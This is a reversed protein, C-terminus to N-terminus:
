HEGCYLDKRRQELRGWAPFGLGGDDAKNASWEDVRPKLQRLWSQFTRDRTVLAPWNRILAEHVVEATEKGPSSAATVVLRNEEDALKQALAWADPGLNTADL